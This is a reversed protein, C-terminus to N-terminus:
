SCSGILGPQQKLRQRLLMLGLLGILLLGPVGPEAVAVMGVLGSTSWRGCSPYQIGPPNSSPCEFSQAFPEPTLRELKQEMLLLIQDGLKGPWILWLTLMRVPFRTVRASPRTRSPVRSAGGPNRASM